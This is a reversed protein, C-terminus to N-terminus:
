HIIAEQIGSDMMIQVVDPNITTGSTALDDEVVVVRTKTNILKSLLNGPYILGGFGALSLIKTFSRRDISYLFNYNDM